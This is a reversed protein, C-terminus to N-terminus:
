YFYTCTFTPAFLYMKSFTPVGTLTPALLLIKLEKSRLYSKWVEGTKRKSLNESKELSELSQVAMSLLHCFFSILSVCKKHFHLIRFFDTNICM